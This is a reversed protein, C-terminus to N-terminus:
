LEIDRGSDLPDRKLAEFFPDDDDLKPGSLLLELLTPERKSLLSYEDFSLIVARPTGAESLLQPGATQAEEVLHDLHTESDRIAWSTM